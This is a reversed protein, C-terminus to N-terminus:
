AYWKPIAQFKAVVDEFGLATLLDCLAEDAMRHGSETDEDRAEDLEKLCQNALAEIEAAWEPDHHKRRQM